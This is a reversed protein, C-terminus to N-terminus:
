WALMPRGGVTPVRELAAGVLRLVLAVHHVHEVLRLEGARHERDTPHLLGLEAREGGRDVQAGGVLGSLWSTHKMVDVPPRM